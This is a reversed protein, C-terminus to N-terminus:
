DRRAAARHFLVAAEVRNRVGLKAFASRLHSKVTETGVYLTRAIEPNSAGEAALAVVQSERESLGLEAGFHRGDAPPAADTPGGDRRPLADSPASAPDDATTQPDLPRDDM